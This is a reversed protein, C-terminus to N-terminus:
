WVEWAGYCKDHDKRSETENTEDDLRGLFLANETEANASLGGVMDRWRPLPKNKGKDTSGVDRQM